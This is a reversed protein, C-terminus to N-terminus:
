TWCYSEFPCLEDSLNCSPSTREQLIAEYEWLSELHLVLAGFFPCFLSVPCSFYVSSSLFLSPWSSSSLLVLFQYFFAIVYKLKVSPIYNQLPRGFLLNLMNNMPKMPLPSSTPKISNVRMWIPSLDLSFTHIWTSIMFLLMLLMQNKLLSNTTQMLLVSIMIAYNVMNIFIRNPTWWPANKEM